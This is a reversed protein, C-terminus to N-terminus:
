GALGEASNLLGLVINVDHGSGRFCIVRKPVALDRQFRGRHMYGNHRRKGELHLQGRAGLDILVGLFYRTKQIDYPIIRGKVERGDSSTCHCWHSMRHFPLSEPGASEEGTSDGASRTCSTDIPGLRSKV